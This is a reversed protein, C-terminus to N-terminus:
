DHLIGWMRFVVLSFKRMEDRNFFWPPFGLHLSPAAVAGPADAVVDSHATSWVAIPADNLVSEEDMTRMRFIPHFCSQSYLGQSTMWYEPDYIEVYYFGRVSPDFYRGPKTVEEWLHLELPLGALRGTLPDNRDIRAYALGDKISTRSEVRGDSRFPGDVKDLVSVCFDNYPM